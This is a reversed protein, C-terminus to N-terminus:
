PEVPEAPASQMVMSSSSGIAAGAKRISLLAVLGVVCSAVVFFGPSVASGTERILWTSVYAATGGTLVTSLNNGLAVGTVRMRLDFLSPLFAAAAVPVLAMALGFLLFSGIAVWRSGTATLHLVPFILVICVVIGCAYARLAGLRDVVLGYVPMLITICAIVGAAIWAVETGGFDNERALHIGVYTFVMYMCTSSPISIGIGRLVSSSQTKLLTLLPFSEVSGDQMSKEHEASDDIKSRTWLCLALLPVGLLFPIRWGWTAMQSESVLSSVSGVCIAALAFGGTTGLFVFSAALGKRTPGAIEYAYTLAGGLEGGASFGQALRALVLLVPAIIGATEYTPLLAMMLSSAGMLMVSLLLVKKRGSRDGVRGFFIGGLPRMLYGSAFIALSALLAATPDSGPFFLPAVVVALYAYVTFDYYEVITGTAAAALGRGLKRRKAEEDATPIHNRNAM